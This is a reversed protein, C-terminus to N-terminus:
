CSLSVVLKYQGTLFKNYIIAADQLIDDLDPAISQLTDSLEVADEARITLDM